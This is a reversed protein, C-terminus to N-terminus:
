PLSFPGKQLHKLGHRPVLNPLHEEIAAAQRALGFGDFPEEIAFERCPRNGLECIAPHQRAGCLESINKFLRHKILLTPSVTATFQPM